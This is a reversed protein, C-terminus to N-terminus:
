LSRRSRQRGVTTLAISALGAAILMTALVGLTVDNGTEPLEDIPEEIPESGVLTVDFSASTDSTPLDLLDTAASAVADPCEDSVAFASVAFGAATVTATAPDGALPSGGATTAEIVLPDALACTASLSPVEVVVTFRFTVSAEGTDADLSGTAPSADTLTVIAEPGTADGRDFSPISTAGNTLAGTSTDLDFTVTSGAPLDLAPPPGVLISGAVEFTQRETAASAGGGVALTAIVAAAFAAATLRSSRSLSVTNLVRRV